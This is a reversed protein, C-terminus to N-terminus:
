EQVMVNYAEIKKSIYKGYDISPKEIIKYSITAIGLSIVMAIGFHIATPISGTFHYILQQILFGWLYTGYSIDIKPKLVMIPKLAFVFIITFSATIILVQEKINTHSLMFYSIWLFLILIPTFEIYDANEGLLVGLSFSMPLLYVEHNSSIWEITHTPIMSAILIIILIMNRIYKKNPIAFYIVALGAYCAMEYRLTWLSGNVSASYLNYSFVGPLQHTTYFITNKIAYVWSQNNKFYDSLPLITVMPGILFSTLVTVVFLAPILRAIRSIIFRDLRPKKKISITMVFGSIFFFIKVALAGSYTYPFLYSIPDIWLGKTGNLISAHGLIVGIALLIRALDLNNNKPDSIEIAKM